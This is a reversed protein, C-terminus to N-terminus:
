FSGQLGVYGPGIIPLVTTNTASNESETSGGIFLGAIGVGIGLGAVIFSATSVHALTQGRDIEDHQEPPCAGDPCADDLEAAKSLSIGGTIAGVITAAGAVGFGIWVLPSIGGEDPQTTVPGTPEPGSPPTAPGLQVVLQIVRNQQGQIVVIDQTAVRKGIAVAIRHPGPDLSIPRGDLVEAVQKADISLVARVVDEGAGTKATVIISPLAGTLEDLWQSCHKSVEQPCNQQACALAERKAAM